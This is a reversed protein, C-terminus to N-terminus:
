RSSCAASFGYRSTWPRRCGPKWARRCRNNGYIAMTVEGRVPLGTKPDGWLSTVMGKSRFRFGVVRHGDIEKEGLPERQVTPKDQANRLISRFMAFPDQRSVQEKTLNALTLVMAKKSAPELTLSRGRGWDFIMIAKSKDPMEIEQRSGTAGLVMVESTTTVAPPGEMETTLKYKVTKADLIPAVFDAYALTAGGGHLWLAVGGIALVFIAAAAVRSVSSRM